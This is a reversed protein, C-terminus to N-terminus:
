GGIEAASGDFDSQSDADATEYADASDRLKSAGGRIAEALSDIQDVLTTCGEAYPQEFFFGTLGWTMEAAGAESAATSIADANPARGDLAAAAARLEEPDVDYGDYSGPAETITGSRDPVTAILGQAINEWEAAAAAGLGKGAAALLNVWLKARLPDKFGWNSSAPRSRRSVRSASDSSRPVRILMQAAKIAASLLFTVVSGGATITATALAVLGRTILWAVLESLIAQIVEYVTIALLRAWDLLQALSGAGHAIAGASAAVGGLENSAWDAAEGDWTPLNGDLDAAIEDELADLATQVQTLVDVQRQMEGDDGTVMLILDDLPQVLDMVITVGASALAYIPDKMFKFADMALGTALSTMAGSVDDATNDGAVAEKIKDAASTFRKVFPIQTATHSGAQYGSAEPYATIDSGHQEAYDNGPGEVATVVSDLAAEGNPVGSVDVGAEDLRDRLVSENQVTSANDSM